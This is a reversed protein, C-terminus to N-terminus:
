NLKHDLVYKLDNKCVIPIRLTLCLIIFDDDTLINLLEMVYLSNIRLMLKVNWFPCDGYQAKRNKTM